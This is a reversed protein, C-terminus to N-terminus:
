LSLSHTPVFSLYCCTLGARALVDGMNKEQNNLREKKERKWFLLLNEMSQAILKLLLLFGIKPRVWNVHLIKIGCYEIFAYAIM